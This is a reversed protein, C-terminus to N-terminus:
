AAAKQTSEIRPQVTTTAPISNTSVTSVGSPQQLTSSPSQVVSSAPLQVESSLILNNPAALAFFPTMGDSNLNFTFSTSQQNKSQRANYAEQTHRAQPDKIVLDRMADLPVLTIDFPIMGCALAFDVYRRLSMSGDVDAELRAIAAQKTQMKEAIQSQTLGAQRRARFLEDVAAALFGAKLYERTFENGQQEDTLQQVIYETMTGDVQTTEDKSM